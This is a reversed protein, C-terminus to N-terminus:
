LKELDWTGYQRAHSHSGFEETVNTPYLFCQSYIQCQRHCGSPTLPIEHSREEFCKLSDLKAGFLGESSLSCDRFVAFLSSTIVIAIGPCNRM